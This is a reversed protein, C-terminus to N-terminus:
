LPLAAISRSRSQGAGRLIESGCSGIETACPDSTFPSGTRSFSPVSNEYEGDTLAQLNRGEADIVYIQSHKGRRDFAIWKWRTVLAANRRSWIADAALIAGTQTAGGYRWTESRASAFAIKTGDPPCNLHTMASPRHLFRRGLLCRAAQAPFSLGGSRHRNAVLM